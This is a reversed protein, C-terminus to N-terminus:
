INFGSYSADRKKLKEAAETAKCSYGFFSRFECQVAGIGSEWVWSALGTDKARSLPMEDPSQSEVHLKFAEVLDASRVYAEQPNELEVMELFM